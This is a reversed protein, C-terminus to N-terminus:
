RAAAANGPPVILDDASIAEGQLLAQMNGFARRAVYDVNDFVGGASHPSGVFQDLTLLPNAPDVPEQEFVDFGAGHLHGEALSAYLAQEDVIGGRATNILIAGRKMRALAGADIMGRTQATLPVHISLIDSGALLEDLSVPRARLARETVPDARRLDHYVVEADFGRLRHAVMRGINGFGLLGVRKGAIQYCVSRMEAKMWVGQRLKRDILPLRRYVALMLAIAHEAVPGANAGYTIAVAVGARRAAELDIKDYGIGWKQILRVRPAAAFMDASFPQTGTIVFDADPLLARQADPEPSDAFVIDFGEPMAATIAERVTPAMVDLFSVRYSM